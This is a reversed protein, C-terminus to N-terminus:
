HKYYEKDNVNVLIMIPNNITEFKFLGVQKKIKKDKTQFADFYKHSYDLHELITSSLTIEFMQKRADGELILCEKNCVFIFQLSNDTHTLLLYM